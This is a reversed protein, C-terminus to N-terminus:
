YLYTIFETVLLSLGHQLQPTNNQVQLYIVFAILIIFHKSESLTVTM